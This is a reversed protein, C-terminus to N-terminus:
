SLTLDLFAKNLGRLHDGLFIAARVDFTVSQAEFVVFYPVIVKSSNTLNM